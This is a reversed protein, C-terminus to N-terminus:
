QDRGAAGGPRTAAQLRLVALRGPVARVFTPTGRLSCINNTTILLYNGWRAAQCRRAVCCWPLANLECDTLRSHLPEGGSTWQYLWFAAQVGLNYPAQLSTHLLLTQYALNHAQSGECVPLPTALWSNLRWAGGLEFGGCHRRRFISAVCWCCGACGASTAARCPPPFQDSLQCRSSAAPMRFDQSPHAHRSSGARVWKTNKALCTWAGLKSAGTPPWRM